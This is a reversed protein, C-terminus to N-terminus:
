PALRASAGRGSTLISRRMERSSFCDGIPHVQRFQAAVDLRAHVLVAGTWTVLQFASPAALYYVWSKRNAGIGSIAAPLNARVHEEGVPDPGSPLLGLSVKVPRQWGGGEWIIPTRNRGMTQIGGYATPM